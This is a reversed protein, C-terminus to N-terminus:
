EAAEIIKVLKSYQLAFRLARAAREVDRLKLARAHQAHWYDRFAVATQHEANISEDAM